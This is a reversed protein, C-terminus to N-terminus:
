KVGHWRNSHSVPASNRPICRKYRIIEHDSILCSPHRCRITSSRKGLSSKNRNWVSPATIFQFTLLSILPVSCLVWYEFVIKQMVKRSRRMSLIIGVTDKFKEDIQYGLFTAVGQETSEETSNIPYDCYTKGDYVLSNSSNLIGSKELAAIM